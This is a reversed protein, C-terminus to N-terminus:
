ATNRRFSENRDIVFLHLQHRHLRHLLVHLMRTVAMVQVRLLVGFILSILKFNVEFYNIILLTVLCLEYTLGEVV